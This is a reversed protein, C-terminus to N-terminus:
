QFRQLAYAEIPISATGSAVLDSMIRATVASLTLGLHHHGFALYLNGRGPAVGLVPLFDPLTPRHGMWRHTEERALGPMIDSIHRKLIEARAWNPGADHDASSFETTGALRLGSSMPTIYFGREFVGIPMDLRTERHSMEVHYGREAVLPVRYNLPKLLRGSLYGACVAVADFEHVM